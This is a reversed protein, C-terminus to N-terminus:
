PQLSPDTNLLVQQEQLLGPNLEGCRYPPKCGDIVENGPSRIGKELMKPVLWVCPICVYIHVFCEYVFYMFIM